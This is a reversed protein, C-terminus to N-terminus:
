PETSSFVFSHPSFLICLFDMCTRQSGRHSTGVRASSTPAQLAVPVPETVTDGAVATGVLEGCALVLVGDMVGDALVTEEVGTCGSVAMRMSSRWLPQTKVALEM